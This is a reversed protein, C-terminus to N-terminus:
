RNDGVIPRAVSPGAEASLIKAGGSVGVAPRDDDSGAAIILALLAAALFVFGVICVAALVREM